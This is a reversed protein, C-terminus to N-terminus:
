RVQQEFLEQILAEQAYECQTDNFQELVQHREM